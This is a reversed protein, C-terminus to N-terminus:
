SVAAQSREAPGYALGPLRRRLPSVQAPLRGAPTASYRVNCDRM